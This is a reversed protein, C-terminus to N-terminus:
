YGLQALGNIALYYSFSSWGVTMMLVTVAIRARSSGLRRALLTGV